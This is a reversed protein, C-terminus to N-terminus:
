IVAAIDTAAANSADFLAPIIVSTFGPFLTLTYSAAGFDM